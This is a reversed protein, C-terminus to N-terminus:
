CPIYSYNSTDFDECGIQYNYKCGEPINWFICYQTCYNVDDDESDKYRRFNTKLPRWNEDVRVRITAGVKHRKLLM